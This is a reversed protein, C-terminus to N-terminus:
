LDRKSCLWFFVPFPTPTSDVGDAVRLRAVVDMGDTWQPGIHRGSVVKCRIGLYRAELLLDILRFLRMASRIVLKSTDFRDQGADEKM